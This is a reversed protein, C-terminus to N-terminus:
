GGLRGSQPGRHGSFLPQVVPLGLAAPELDGMRATWSGRLRHCAIRDGNIYICTYVEGSEGLSKFDRYNWATDTKPHTYAACNSSDFHSM